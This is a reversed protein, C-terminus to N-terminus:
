IIKKKKFEKYIGFISELMNAILCIALASIVDYIYHQKVFLTSIIILLAGVIIWLKNKMDYKSRIYSYIVQFCFLCHISPFCNLPPEDFYFTVKIVFNTIPDYNPITARHMITPVLLFIIDCMIFGIIGAIIGKYYSKSDKRYLLYFALICFPYFMNYIYIFWGWFPIKEDLYFDIYIPNHQFQKLVWYLTAQGIMLISLSIVFKKNEKIFQKISKMFM